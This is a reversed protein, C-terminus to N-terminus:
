GVSAPLRRDRYDWRLTLEKERQVIDVGHRTGARIRACDVLDDEHVSLGDISGV